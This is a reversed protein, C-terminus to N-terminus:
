GTKANLSTENDSRSKNNWAMGITGHLIDAETREGRQFGKCIRGRHLVLIRQSMELAETYDSTVVPIGIGQEPLEIMIRYIERAMAMLEELLNMLLLSKANREWSSSVLSKKRFYIPSVDSEANCSKGENCIRARACAM